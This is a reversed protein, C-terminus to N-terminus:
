PAPYEQEWSSESSGLLSSLALGLPIGLGLSIAVVVGTDAKNGDDKEASTILAAIGAAALLGLGGGILVAKTHNTQEIWLTDIIELPVTTVLGYQDLTLDFDDHGKYYGGLLEDGSAAVRIAQGPELTEMTDWLELTYPFETDPNFVPSGTTDAPAVSLGRRQLGRTWRQLLRAARRKAAPPAGERQGARRFARRIFLTVLVAGMLVGLIGVTRGRGPVLADIRDSFREAARKMNKWIGVQAQLDYDLVMSSWRESTADWLDSLRARWGEGRISGRGEAPTPDFRLWGAGERYVEVWAHADRDRAILRKGDADWETALYGTALRCPIKRHRLMVALATAFTECHGGRNGDLFEALSRAGGNEM